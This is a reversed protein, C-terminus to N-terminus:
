RIARDHRNPFQFADDYLLTQFGEAVSDCVATTGGAPTTLEIKRGYRECVIGKVWCEQQLRKFTGDKARARVEIKKRINFDRILDPTTATNM